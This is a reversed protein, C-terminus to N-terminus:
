GPISEIHIHGHDLSSNVFDGLSAADSYSRMQHGDWSSLRILRERAMTAFEERIRREPINFYTSLQYTRLCVTGSRRSALRLVEKRLSLLSNM